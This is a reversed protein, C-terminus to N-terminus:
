DAQPSNINSPQSPADPIEKWYSKNIADEKAYEKIEQM